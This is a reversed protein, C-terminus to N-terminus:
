GLDSRSTLPPKGSYPYFPETPISTIPLHSQPVQSQLPLFMAARAETKSIPEYWVHSEFRKSFTRLATNFPSDASPRSFDASFGSDEEWAAPAPPLPQITGTTRYLVYGVGRRLVEGPVDLDHEVSSACEPIQVIAEGWKRYMFVPLKDLNGNDAEASVDDPRKVHVGSLIEANVTITNSM